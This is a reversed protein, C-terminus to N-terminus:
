YPLLHFEFFVEIGIEPGIGILVVAVGKQNTSLDRDEDIRTMGTMDGMKKMLHLFISNRWFFDIEDNEGMRVRVMEFTEFGKQIFRDLNGHAPLFFAVKLFTSLKEKLHHSL